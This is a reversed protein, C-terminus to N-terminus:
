LRLGRAEHLLERGDLFRRLNELFLADTRPYLQDTVGAGHATLAVCPHAWFPSEPPLPETQFVDLVAHQPIGSDLATLLAAEDVLGGRAVNVLVSGRKMASLFKADVLHTTAACLPISLVVVDARPLHHALASLPAITEALASDKLDRRIGTITAGLARARAAVCQGIAGFGVILWHTGMTERFFIPRWIRGAQQARRERGCQFHDLVGAIVFEAISSAHTHSTTIRVERAALEAFAPQELGAASVQVWKLGVAARMLEVFSERAPSTFLDVSYWAIDPRAEAFGVPRDRLSLAAADSFVLAELDAFEELGERVRRWAEEHLLVRM